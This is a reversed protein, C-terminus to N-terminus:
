ELVVCSCGLFFGCDILWDLVCLWVCCVVVWCGVCCMFGDYCILGIGVDCDVMCGIMGGYM